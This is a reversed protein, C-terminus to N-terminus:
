QIESESFANKSEPKSRVKGTAWRSWNTSRSGSQYSSAANLNVEERKRKIGKRKLVGGRCRKVPPQAWPQAGANTL